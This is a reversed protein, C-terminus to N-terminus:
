RKPEPPKPVTARGAAPRGAKPPTLAELPNKPDDASGPIGDAGAPGHKQYLLYENARWVHGDIAKIAGAVGLIAARLPEPEVGCRAYIQKMVALGADAKGWALLLVAKRKLGGATDDCKAVAAAFAADRGPVTPLDVADVPNVLDDPTGLKGDRGPPGHRQLLLYQNARLLNGDLAKLVTAVQYVEETLTEGVAARYAALAEVLAMDFRRHQMAVSLRLTHDLPGTAELMAALTGLPEAEPLEVAALPDEVDDPTGPRGDRGHPGYRQFELFPRVRRSLDGDASKLVRAVLNMAQPVARVDSLVYCANAYCLAQAPNGQELDLEALARLCGAPYRIGWPTLWFCRAGLEYCSRATAVDNRSRFVAGLQALNDGADALPELNLVEEGIEFALGHRDVDRLRAMVWGLKIRGERSTLIARMQERAKASVATQQKEAYVVSQYAHMQAVFGLDKARRALPIATNATRLCDDFLGVGLYYRSVDTYHKARRAPHQVAAARQELQRWLAAAAKTDGRRHLSLGRIGTVEIRVSEPTAPSKLLEDILENARAYKRGREVLEAITRTKARYDIAGALCPAVALAVALLGLAGVHRQLRM